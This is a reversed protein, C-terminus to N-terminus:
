PHILEEKIINIQKWLPADPEVAYLAMSCCTASFDEARPRYNPSVMGADFARKYVSLAKEHQGMVMCAEALPRIAEARYINIITDGKDDYLALAADAGALAKQTDGTRYRMRAVAAVKPFYNEFDWDYDDLFVQADNVLGLAKDKDNHNLASDAMKLLLEMRIKIPLKDWSSKITQEAHNRRESNEYFHNFLEAYGHLAHITTEFGQLAILADLSKVQAGYTEDSFKARTEALKETESVELNQSLEAAKNDMGLLIYAQALRAKIRDNRWKRNHDLGAIQEAIDMGKRVQEWGYGKKVLHYAADAYCYGRRWNAIKDARQIATRYQELQIYTEVVRQQARSRDKIFPDVEIISASNFAIDLLINQYEALPKDAIGGADAVIPGNQAEVGTFCSLLALIGTIILNPITKVPVPQPKSASIPSYLM